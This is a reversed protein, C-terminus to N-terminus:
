PLKYDLEFHYGEQDARYLATGTIGALSGTGSGESIRLASVASGAEFTGDDKMVFSGPRGAVVGNFLIFGVYSATSNHQDKADFHSYFMLYEVSAKGEIEGSLAYEVSARTTKMEPSIQECTTEDWKKVTYTGKARMTGGTITRRNQLYGM